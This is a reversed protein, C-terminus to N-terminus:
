LEVTVNETMEVHGGRKYKVIKDDEEWDGRRLGKVGKRARM